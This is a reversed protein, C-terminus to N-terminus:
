FGNYNGIGNAIVVTKLVRLVGTTAGIIGNAKLGAASLRLLKTGFLAMAAGTKFLTKRLTIYALTLKSVIILAPGIAATLAAFTIINKKTRESLRSM